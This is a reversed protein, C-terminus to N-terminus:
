VTDSNNVFSNNSSATHETDSGLSMYLATHVESANGIVLSAIVRNQPLAWKITVKTVPFAEALDGLVWRLEGLHWGKGRLDNEPGM